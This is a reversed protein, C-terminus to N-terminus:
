LEVYRMLKQSQAALAQATSLAAADVTFNNINIGQAFLGNKSRDTDGPVPLPKGGTGGDDYAGGNDGSESYAGNVNFNIDITRPIAELRRRFDEVAETAKSSHVTLETGTETPVEGVTEIFEEVKAIGDEWSIQGNAIEQAVIEMKERLVLAQLAAEGQKVSMEGAAVAAAIMAEPAGEAAAVMNWMEDKLYITTDAALDTSELYPRVADAETNALIDYYEAAAVTVDDYAETVEVIADKQLRNADYSAMAYVGYAEAAENAAIRAEEEQRLAIVTEDTIEKTEELGDWFHADMLAVQAKLYDWVGLEGREYAETLLEMDDKGKRQQEMYTGVGKAFEGAADAGEIMLPVIEPLLSEGIVINFDEWAAALDRQAAQFNDSEDVAAGTADTTGQMLLNIRAQVKAAELQAGSLKDWGQAALEAKLTNENIVVGFALANEHSGILTGQLRRMAEDVPMDNFAALDLGLAVLDESLGAAEGRALGMPVLTDQFTNAYGILAHESNRTSEALDDLAAETGDAFEGFVTDFKSYRAEVDSAVEMANWGFDVLQSGVALIAGGALVGGFAQGLSVGSKSVRDMREAAKEGSDGLKEIDDKAKKTAKSGAWEAEIQYKISPDAM